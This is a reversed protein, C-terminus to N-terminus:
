DASWPHIGAGLDAATDATFSLLSGQHGIIQVAELGFTALALSVIAGLVAVDDPKDFTYESIRRKEVVGRPGDFDLRDQNNIVVNKVRETLGREFKTVQGQKYAVPTQGAYAVPAYYPLLLSIRM